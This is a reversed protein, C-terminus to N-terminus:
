FIKLWHFRCVRGTASFFYSTEAHDYLVVISYLVYWVTTRKYQDVLTWSINNGTALSPLFLPPMTPVPLRTNVYDHHPHFLNPTFPIFFRDLIYM